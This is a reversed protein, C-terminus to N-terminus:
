RWYEEWESWRQIPDKLASAGKSTTPAVAFPNDPASSPQSILTRRWATVQPTMVLVEFGDKKARYADLDKDTFSLGRSRESEAIRKAPWVPLTSTDSPASLKTQRARALTQLVTAS